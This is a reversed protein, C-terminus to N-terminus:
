FEVVRYETASNAPLANDERVRILRQHVPTGKWQDWVMIGQEDHTIYIAAHWGTKNPYIGGDFTAIITGQEITGPNHSM